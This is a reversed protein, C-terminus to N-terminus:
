SLEIREEEMSHSPKKYEVKEIKKYSTFSSGDFGDEDIIFISVEVDGHLAREAILKAILEELKM